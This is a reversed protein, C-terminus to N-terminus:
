LGRCRWPWASGAPGRPGRPLPTAWGDRGGAAGADHRATGWRGGGPLSAPPPSPLPHGRRRVQTGM